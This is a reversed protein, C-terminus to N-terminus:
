RLLAITHYFLSVNITLDISSLSILFFKVGSLTIIGMIELVSMIETKLPKIM